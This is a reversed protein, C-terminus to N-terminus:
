TGWVYLGDRIKELLKMEESRLGSLNGHKESSNASNM